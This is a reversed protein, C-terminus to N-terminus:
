QMYFKMMVLVIDQPSMTTTTINTHIYLYSYIITHTDNGGSCSHTDNGGSRSVLHLTHMCSQFHLNDLLLHQSPMVFQEPPTYHHTTHHLTTHPTTTYYKYQLTANTNKCYDNNDNNDDYVCM